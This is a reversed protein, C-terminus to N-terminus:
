REDQTGGDTAAVNSQNLHHMVTTRHMKYQRSLTDISSGHRYMHILQGIDRRSLRRQVPNSLRGTEEQPGGRRRTRAPTPVAQGLQPPHQRESRGQDAIIEVAKPPNSLRGM